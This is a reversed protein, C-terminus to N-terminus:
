KRVCYPSHITPYAIKLLIERSNPFKEMRMMFPTLVSFRYKEGQVICAKNCCSKAM